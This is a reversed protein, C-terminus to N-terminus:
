ILFYNLLFIQESKDFDTIFFNMVNILAKRIRTINGNDIENKEKINDLLYQFDEQFNMIKVKQNLHLHKLKLLNVTSSKYIRLPM